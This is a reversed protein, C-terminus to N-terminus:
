SDAVLMLQSNDKLGLSRRVMMPIVIRGRNDITLIRVEKM